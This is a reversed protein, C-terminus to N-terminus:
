FRVFHKHRFTQLCWSSSIKSEILLFKTAEFFVSFFFYRKKNCPHCQLSFSPFWLVSLSHPCLIYESFIDESLFLKLLSVFMGQSNELDKQFDLIPLLAHCEFEILWKRGNRNL